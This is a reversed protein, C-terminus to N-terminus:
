APFVISNGAVAVGAVAKIVTCRFEPESVKGDATFGKKLEVTVLVDGISLDAGAEKRVHFKLWADFSRVNTGFITQATGLVIPGALGFQLRLLLEGMERTKLDIFDQIVVTRPVKEWGGNVSPRSFSRDETVVGPVFSMVSGLTYDTWNTTPTADPKATASVVASDVTVGLPILYAFSGLFLEQLTPASM